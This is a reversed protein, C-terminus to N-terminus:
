RPPYEGRSRPHDRSPPKTGLRGSTNGALAPIIRLGSYRGHVAHPIGRSLPSSGLRGHRRGRRRGYEGRSRPHDQVDLIVRGHAVTNGALAPIIGALLIEALGIGRIGRSLPSSGSKHKSTRSDSTYEGRSRPHDRGDGMTLSSSGTNGALAPIIGLEKSSHGPRGQIGRSLPSSGPSDDVLQLAQDYEGRSRPHDTLCRIRSGVGRTNGALAPIIGWLDNLEETPMLIGRSLPSSGYQLRYVFAFAAYEGRSRPHDTIGGCGSLTIRTNGALAPIIGGLVRGASVPCLIGRSLPSSGAPSSTSTLAVCYEGRSRPHDPPTPM